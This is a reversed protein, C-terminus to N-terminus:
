LLYARDDILVPIGDYRIESFSSCSGGSFSSAPKCADRSRRVSLFHPTYYSSLNSETLSVQSDATDNQEDIRNFTLKRPYFFIHPESSSVFNLLFMEDIFIEGEAEILGYLLYNIGAPTERLAKAWASKNQLAQLALACIGLIVVVLFFVLSPFLLRKKQLIKQTETAEKSYFKM